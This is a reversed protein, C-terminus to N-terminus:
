FSLQSALLLCFPRLTVQKDGYNPERCSVSCTLLFCLSQAQEYPFAVGIWGEQVRELFGAVAFDNRRVHPGAVFEDRLQAAAARGVVIDDRRGAVDGGRNDAGTEGRGEIKCLDRGVILERGPQTM